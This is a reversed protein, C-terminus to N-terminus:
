RKEKGYFTIFEEITHKQRLKKMIKHNNRFFNLKKKFTKKLSNFKPSKKM